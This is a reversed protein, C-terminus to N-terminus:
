PHPDPERTCVSPYRPDCTYRASHGCAQVDVTAASLEERLETRVENEPCHFENAARTRAGDEATICALAPIAGVIAMLILRRMGCPLLLTRVLLSAPWWREKGTGDPCLARSAGRDV